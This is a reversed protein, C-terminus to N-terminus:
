IDHPCRKGMLDGNTCYAVLVDNESAFTSFSCERPNKGCEKTGTENIINRLNKIAKAAWRHSIKDLNALTVYKESGTEDTYVTAQRLLEEARASDFLSLMEKLEERPSKEAKPQSVAGLPKTEVTDESKRMPRLTAVPAEVECEIREMRDMEESLYLGRLKTPWALRRAIAEACKALMHFPMKKWIYKDSAFEKWRAIGVFRTKQSGGLPDPLWRYLSVKAWEPRGLEDEPGFEPPDIGAFSGDEEGKARMYDITTIFTIRGDIKAPIILRDLPHTGRRECEHLYLAMEEDTSGAFIVKRVLEKQERSLAPVVENGEKM